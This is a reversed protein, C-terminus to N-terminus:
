GYKRKRPKKKKKQPRQKNRIKKRKKRKEERQCVIFKSGVRIGHFDDIVENVLQLGLNM